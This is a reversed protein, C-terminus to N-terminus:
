DDEEMTEEKGWNQWNMGAISALGIVVWIIPVAIYVFLTILIVCVYHFPLIFYSVFTYNGNEDLIADKVCSFALNFLAIALFKIENM